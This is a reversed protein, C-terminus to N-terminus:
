RRIAFLSFGCLIVYLVSIIINVYYGYALEYPKAKTILNGIPLYVMWFLYYVIVILRAIMLWPRQIVSAIVMIIIIGIFYVALPNNVYYWSEFIYFRAIPLIPIVVSVISLVIIIKEQVELERYIGICYEYVRLLIDAIWNFFNIIYSMVRTVFDIIVGLM